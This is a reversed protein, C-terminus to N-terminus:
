LPISRRLTWPSMQIGTTAYFRARVCVLRVASSVMIRNAETAVYQSSHNLQGKRGKRNTAIADLSQSPFQYLHLDRRSTQPVIARPNRRTTPVSLSNLLIRWWTQKFTQDSILHFLHSRGESVGVAQLVKDCCPYSQGLCHCPPTIVRAHMFIAWKFDLFPFLNFRLVSIFM